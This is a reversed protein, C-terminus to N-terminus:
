ADGAVGAARPSAFRAMPTWDVPQPSRHLHVVHWAGQDDRELVVTERSRVPLPQGDVHASVVYSAVAAADGARRVEVDWTRCEHVLLGEEVRRRLHSGFAERSRLVAREAPVVITAEPDFLGLYAEVDRREYARLLADVAEGADTHHGM